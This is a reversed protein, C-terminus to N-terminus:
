FGRVKEPRVRIAVSYSEAMSDPTLGIDEIGQRYKEIYALRQDEPPEATEIRAKGTFIVVDGGDETSNFHLAVKSSHAINRLKPKDPQSFILFTDGDWLFWVPSPQPTLDSGVTVLWIVLEERLRRAVRSGFETSLDLEFM